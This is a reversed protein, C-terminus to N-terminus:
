VVRITAANAMFNRPFNQERGFYYQVFKTNGSPPAISLSLETQEGVDEMETSNLSGNSSQKLEPWLPLLLQPQSEAINEGNKEASICLSLNPVVEASLDLDGSLNPSSEQPNELSDEKMSFSTINQTQPCMDFLSSRRKRRPLSSQRLFYKQAHSAVQTPTRTTVFNRSIGRWDGKGLKELGALFLRHEEESWPVGKKRDRSKSSTHLLGDSLYGEDGAAGSDTQISSFGPYQILDGTSVSKRMQIDGDM